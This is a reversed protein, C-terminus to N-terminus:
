KTSEETEPEGEPNEIVMVTSIPERDNRSKCLQSRYNEPLKDLDDRDVFEAIIIEGRGDYEFITGSLVAIMEGSELIDEHFILNDFETFGECELYVEGDPKGYIDTGEPLSYSYTDNSGYMLFTFTDDTFSFAPGGDVGKYVDYWTTHLEYSPWEYIMGPGDLIYNQANKRILAKVAPIAIVAVVVLIILLKMIKKM